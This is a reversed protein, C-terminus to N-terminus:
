LIELLQEKSLTSSSIGEASLLEDALASKMNQLDLIKQEITNEVILKYVTVPNKQGIRHTRDSAQNEAAINWWPDYHIVVDAATLNLGTGGAKLSISFVPVDDKQFLEVMEARKEKPTEGSLFYYRINNEELIHNLKELMTKFQSFLLIKHGGAIANQILDICLDEKASNGKYDEYVLSPACCTQRLRTLEALIKIKDKRFDAENEKALMRRLREKRAEYLEKQEGELQAYYVEEIKEPLDNLVDIKRRRLIFPAVMRKLRDMAESNQEKIIPTEFSTKFRNYRYLFGPLLYDFISWLESLRNEIPTGTLAIRFDAHIAKVAEAALTRANKIFQAEDIIEVTFSKELYLEEDRKLTDYSTILVANQPASSIQEKRDKVAGSIMVAPIEPAFRRLENRWNYVLSAPCVVLCQGRKALSALFAIVQVTKGLGMEDALLAAFQNDYLRHLWNYGEKQYSRLDAQLSPPIAYNQEPHDMRNVLEQFYEDRTFTLTNQEQETKDIYMARYSPVQATGSRIDKDSLQLDEVFQAFDALEEEQDIRIFSGNKLRYYKKKPKYRSLIEALDELTRSDGSLDLELLNSKLSVGVAVRNLTRLQIKKLSDSIFVEGKSQLFPIGNNLFEAMKDEDNIIVMKKQDPDYSNFYASVAHELNTEEERNRLDRGAAEDAFLNFSRNDYVALIECSIMNPQPLDLYFRFSPKPPIYSMLDLSGADLDYIKYVHPLIQKLFPKVDADSIYFSSNDAGEFFQLFRDFAPSVDAPIRSIKHKNQNLIYLFRSGYFCILPESSFTIGHEDKEITAHLQPTEDVLVMQVERRSRNDPKETIGIDKICDIFEDLYRGKLSLYRGLQGAYYYNDMYYHSTERYSDMNKYLSRLFRFLPRCSPIFSEECPIFELNKGYRISTGCHENYLLNNISNLVYGKTGNRGIRFEVPLSESDTLSDYNIYPQIYVSASADRASVATDPELFALVRRDTQYKEYEDFRIRGDERAEIYTLILEICHICLESGSRGTPCTCSFSEISNTQENVTVNTYCHQTSTLRTKKGKLHILPYEAPNYTAHELPNTYLSYQAKQIMFANAFYNLCHKDIM